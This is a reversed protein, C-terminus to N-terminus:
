KLLKQTYNFDGATIKLIYGGHPLNGSKLEFIEAGNVLVINQKYIRQGSANYLVLEASTQNFDHLYVTVPDLMPNPYIEVVPNGTNSFVVKSAKNNKSILQYEPDILVTDPMFGINRIFIEGNTKNNVVITKEQTANKFKLPVPMEFFSVSPDSTVQNM